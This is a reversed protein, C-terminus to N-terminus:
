FNGFTPGILLSRHVKHHKWDNPLASELSAFPFVFLFIRRAPFHPDITVNSGDHSASGSAGPSSHSSSPDLQDRMWEAARVMESWSAPLFRVGGGWSYFMPPAPRVRESTHRERRQHCSTDGPQHCSFDMIWGRDTFGGGRASRHVEERPDAAPFDSLQNSQQM